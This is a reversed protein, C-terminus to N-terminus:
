LRASDLLITKKHLGHWKGRRAEVSPQPRKSSRLNEVFQRLRDVSFTKTLTVSCGFRCHLLALPCKRKDNSRLKYPKSRLAFRSYGLDIGMGSWVAQRM